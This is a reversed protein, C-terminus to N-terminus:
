SGSARASDIGLARISPRLRHLGEFLEALGALADKVVVPPVNGQVQSVQEFIANIGALEELFVVEGGAHLPKQLLGESAKRAFGGLPHKDQRLGHPTSFLWLM